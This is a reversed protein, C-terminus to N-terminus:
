RFTLVLRTTGRSSIVSISGGHLRMIQRSISLGLGSGQEKTTFFPVFIQSLLEDSIGPGNDMVELVVQDEENVFSRLSITPTEVTDVAQLANAVLNSLVQHILNEDAHLILDAPDTQVTIEIRDTSNLAAVCELLPHLYFLRMRPPPIRAFRRYSDVFALLNKGTNQITVLGQHLDEAGKNSSPDIELLTDTLSTIPTISNMIEHTLVRTLKIWSDIEREDLEGGIENLAVIRLSRGQAVVESARLLLSLTGTETQVSIQRQEPPYLEGFISPLSVEVGALQHLHTLVQLGLLQHAARNSLCIVGTDDLVLIGTNVRDLILKYYEETRVIRAREAALLDRIRNLARSLLNDAGAGEYERFQFSYDGNAISEFLFTLKRINQHFLRFLSYISVLAVLVAVLLWGQRHYIFAVTGGSISLILLLISRALRYSTGKFAM